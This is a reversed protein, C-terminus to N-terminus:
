HGFAGVNLTLAIANYRFQAPGLAGFTTVGLGVFTFNGHGEINYAVETASPRTL